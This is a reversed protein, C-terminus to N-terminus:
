SRGGEDGVVSGVSGVSGLKGVGGEGEDWGEVLPSYSKERCEERGLGKKLPGSEGTRVQM